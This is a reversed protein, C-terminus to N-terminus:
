PAPRWRAMLLGIVAALGTTVCSAVAILPSPAQRLQPWILAPLTETAPSSLFVALISENLSLLFVACGSASLAPRLLPITVRFLAQPRSAGLGRAVGELERGLQDHRNRVILWVIPLGLIAHLVVLGVVSTSLGALALIPVTGLGLAVPPLAVPLMMLGGTATRLGRGAESVAYAATGAALVSLAAAAAAVSLSRGLARTWRGDSFFRAYWRLSWQERPPTLFEDPSFSLWVSYWTPATLLVVLVVLLVWRARRM